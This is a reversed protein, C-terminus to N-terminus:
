KSRWSIVNDFYLEVGPGHHVEFYAIQPKIAPVIPAVTQIIETCFKRMAGIKDDGFEQKITAPLRDYSPDIGVCVPAHKDIIAATLDDAFHGPM